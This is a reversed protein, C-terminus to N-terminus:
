QATSGRLSSSPLERRAKEFIKDFWGAFRVEMSDLGLTPVPALPRGLGTFPVGPLKLGNADWIAGASDVDLGAWIPVVRGIEATV